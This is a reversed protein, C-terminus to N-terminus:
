IFDRSGAQLSSWTRSSLLTCVYVSSYIVRKLMDWTIIQTGKKLPQVGAEMEETFFNFYAIPLNDCDGSSNCLNSIATLIISKTYCVLLVTKPKKRGKLVFTIVSYRHWSQFRQPMKKQLETIKWFLREGIVGAIWWVNM